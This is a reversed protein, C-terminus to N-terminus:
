TNKIPATPRGERQRSTLFLCLAGIILLLSGYQAPTLGAYRADAGAIDTARGFDFIFRAAGYLFMTLPLFIIKPTKRLFLFYLGFLLFGFLSEILGMDLRSGGPFAVALPSNSLRGLHLHNFFCGLRGIGLGLPFAYMITDAYDWFPLKKARTYVLSVVAAGIFGGFSSLGGQWIKLIDLPSASFHQWDYFFVHFLRAGIFSAIIVLLGWDLLHATNLGNKKARREAVYLAASFGLAVMLGWVYIHIPGLMITTFQFYPIM